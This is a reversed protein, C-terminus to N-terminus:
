EAYRWRYGCATHRNKQFECVDKIHRDAAQFSCGTTEHMYQAASRVSPFKRIFNMDKDYQNVARGNERAIESSHRVVVNNRHLCDSIADHSFGTLRAVEHINRVDNYMLVIEEDVLLPKGVGGLSINYGDIRANYQAIWYREREDRVDDEVEEILEIHFKDIGLENMAVYLPRHNRDTRRCTDVHERWRNNLSHQTAGVYVKDNVDNYIKYIKAM